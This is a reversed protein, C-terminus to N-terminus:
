LKAIGLNQDATHSEREPRDCAREQGLTWDASPPSLELLSAITPRTHPGTSAFCYKYLHLQKAPHQSHVCPKRNLPPIVSNLPLFGPDHIIAPTRGPAQQSRYLLVNPSETDRVRTKGCYCITHWDRNGAIRLSLQSVAVSQTRQDVLHKGSVSQLACRAFHRALVLRATRLREMVDNEGTIKRLIGLYDDGSGQSSRVVIEEMKALVERAGWSPLLLTPCLRLVDVMDCLLVAWWSKPALDEHFMALLHSAASALEKKKLYQHFQAYQVAFMLHHIYVAHLGPQGYLDQLSSTIDSAYRIFLEPGETVYKALVRDVVNGLGRWDEASTLYAIALGYDNEQIFTQAAIKCITRRVAERQHELCTENVKQLVGVVHGAKIRRVGGTEILEGSTEEQQTLRLPVRMLIEDARAKGVDGCSYLYEVNIQWLAPDAHLYEAYSCVYQDRISLGSAEDIEDEILALAQMIDALHAAL